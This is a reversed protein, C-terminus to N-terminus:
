PHVIVTAPASSPPTTIVLGTSTRKGLEGERTAYVHQWASPELASHITVTALLAFGVALLPTVLRQRWPASKRTRRM